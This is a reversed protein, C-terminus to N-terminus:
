FTRIICPTNHPSAFYLARCDTLVHWPFLLRQSHPLLTFPRHIAHASQSQCGLLVTPNESVECNITSQWFPFGEDTWGSKCKVEAMCGLEQCVRQFSSNTISDWCISLALHFLTTRHDSPDPLYFTFCYVKVREWTPSFSQLFGQAGHVASSM